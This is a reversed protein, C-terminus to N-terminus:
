ALLNARSSAETQCELRPTQKGREDTLARDKADHFKRTACKGSTVSRAARRSAPQLAQRPREQDPSQRMSFGTGVIALLNQDRQTDWISREIRDDRNQKQGYEIDIRRLEKLDIKKNHRWRDRFVFTRLLLFLVGACFLGVVIYAIVRATM